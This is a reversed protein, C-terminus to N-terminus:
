GSCAAVHREAHDRQQNQDAADAAPGGEGRDGACNHGRPEQLHLAVALDDLMEAHNMALDLHDALAEPPPQIFMNRVFLNHWAYQTVFRVSMRFDPDAGTWCDQVFVDKGQLYSAMRRHLEDFTDAPFPRNVDGWWITDRTSPEEVIFKDNPSRGTFQGTRVVLPGLHALIAENRKLAQEYLAPTSLNWYVNKLNSLGHSELGVGSHPHASYEQM